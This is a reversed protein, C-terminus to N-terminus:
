VTCIKFFKISEPKPQFKSNCCGSFMAATLDTTTLFSPQLCSQLAFLLSADLLCFQLLWFLHYCALSYLLCYPLMRCASSYCGSFITAPLVTSCVTLICGALLVTAALFSPLLCSQLAFLLSQRTDQSPPTHPGQPHPRWIPHPLPLAGYCHCLADTLEPCLSLSSTVWLSILLRLSSPLSSETVAELHWCACLSHQRAYSSSL